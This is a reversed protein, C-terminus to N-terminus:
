AGARARRLGRCRHHTLHKEARPGRDCLGGLGAGSVASRRGGSPKSEKVYITVQTGKIKVKNIEITYGGSSRQGSAITYNLGNAETYFGRKSYKSEYYGLNKIIKYKLAQSVNNNEFVKFIKDIQEKTLDDDSIPRGMANTENIIENFLSKLTKCDEENKVSITNIVPPICPARICYIQPQIVIDFYNEKEEISFILSNLYYNLTRNKNDSIQSFVSIILLSFICIISKLNVM